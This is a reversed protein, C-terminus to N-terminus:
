KMQNALNRTIKKLANKSYFKNKDVSIALHVGQPANKNNLEIIRTGKPAPQPAQKQVKQQELSEVIRKETETISRQSDNKVNIRIEREFNHRDM